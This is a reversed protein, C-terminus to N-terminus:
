RPCIGDKPCCNTRETSLPGCILYGVPCVSGELITLCGTQATAVAVLAAICAMLKFQM